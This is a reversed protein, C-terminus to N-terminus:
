PNWGPVTRALSWMLNDLALAYGNGVGGSNTLAVFYYDRSTICMFTSTGPLLGTHWRNRLDNVAWGHGFAAAPHPRAAMARVASQSIINEVYNAGDIHALLAVLDSPTAIWGGNADLRPMNLAAPNGNSPFYEVELPGPLDHGVQMTRAGSPVLVNRRVWAEYGQGTVQEVIRGLLCYGFNSYRQVQGPWAELPHTAIVREILEHHDLWGYNMTPDAGDNPWGGATHSLLHHVRIARLRDNAPGYRNGFISGPGFVADNLSLKRQDSLKMIAVATVPKSLSAIRFRHDATVPTGKSDAVGYILSMETAGYRGIAASLARIGTTTMFTRCQADISQIASEPIQAHANAAGSLCLAGAGLLFTRRHM